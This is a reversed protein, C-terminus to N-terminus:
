PQTPTLTISRLELGKWDDKNPKLDLTCPGAKPISIRGLELTQTGNSASAQIEV